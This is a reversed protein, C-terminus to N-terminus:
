VPLAGIVPPLQDPTSGHLVLEDAGAALYEAFRGVCHEPSGVAASSALWEAPLTTAADTLQDRTRVFDASGKVGKLQPHERLRQLPATDWGNTGALREGFGPIQFYTVARGGVVAAEEEPPLGSATVVTAYVKISSPDRGASEAAERVTAASRAVAEPTLFPHLLVGDFHAGALALTKPGIAALVLPPPPVDPLDSLRMAPFRGAPGDYSVKDGHCLRRLIDASDALVQNTAAPLGVAKWMAAVSRGFGLVLRGGTLGQATMAMSALVAPHRVQFHTIGAAVKTTSTVQGLAGALVAFDKTGWRESIWVTGLGLEEAARGQAIAPRPDAVRGPLAYAGLASAHVPVRGVTAPFVRPPTTM